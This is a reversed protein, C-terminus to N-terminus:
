LVRQLTDRVRAMRSMVTGPPLCLLEGTEKYSMGYIWVLEILNRQDTSLEAIDRRLEDLVVRNEALRQGDFSLLHDVVDIDVAKGRFRESRMQDIWLNRAIRFMWSDLRSGPRWQDLHALARACTEQVLDESSNSGGTLSHVFRQLRPLIDVMRRHLDNVMAGPRQESNQAVRLSRAQRLAVPRARATDPEAWERPHAREATM